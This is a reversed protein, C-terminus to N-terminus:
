LEDKRMPDRKSMKKRMDEQKKEAEKLTPFFGELDMWEGVFATVMKAWDQVTDGDLHAGDDDMTHWVRPFPTPIIHLVEIGRAMFPVHDDEIYNGRFASTQKDAEPLFPKTPTTLLAPPVTNRM